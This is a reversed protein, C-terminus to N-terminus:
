VGNKKELYLEIQENKGRYTRYIGYRVGDLKAIEEGQYDPAFILTRYEARIGNKGAEFFEAATVSTIACFVERETESAVRQGIADTTYTKSILKITSSRDM